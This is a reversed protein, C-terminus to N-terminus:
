ATIPRFFLEVLIEGRASLEKSQASGAIEFSWMLVPMDYRTYKEEASLM